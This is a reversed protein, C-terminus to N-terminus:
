VFKYKNECCVRGQKDCWAEAIEAGPLSYSRVSLRWNRCAPTLVSGMKRVFTCWGKESCCKLSCSFKHECEPDLIPEIEGNEYIKVAGLPFFLALPKELLPEMVSANIPPPNSIYAVSLLAGGRVPCIAVFVDAFCFIKVINIGHLWHLNRLCSWVLVIPLPAYRFFVLRSARDNRSLCARLAPSDRLSAVVLRAHNM